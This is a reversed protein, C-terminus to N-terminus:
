DRGVGGVKRLKDLAEKLSLNKSPTKGEGLEAGECADRLEQAKRKLYTDAEQVTNFHQSDWDQKSGLIRCLLKPTIKPPM